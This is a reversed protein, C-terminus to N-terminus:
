RTLRAYEAPPVGLMRRFHRTFHAQDYFGVAVAVDAAHHGTLLLGRAADLRRGTLYQHPAIGYARQFARVLHTPHAGLATAAETLVIGDRLHSDLLDRLGAAIPRDRVPGALASRPRLHHRLREAVFALRSEAEFEGGPRQLADHLRAIREHLVDDRLGPHDVAPGVLDPGLHSDDLYVVRKRFGDPVASRGDHAVQPPLLTVLRGLAGHEHHDLDFRVVGDDIILLTWADHTHMPYAHAPFYAHLVEAVGNVRPRWARVVAAPGGPTSGM